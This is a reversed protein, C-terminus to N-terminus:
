IYSTNKKKKKKKQKKKKGGPKRHRYVWHTNEDQENKGLWIKNRNKKDDGGRWM